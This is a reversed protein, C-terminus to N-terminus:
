HVPYAPYPGTVDWVERLAQSYIVEYWEGSETGVTWIDEYRKEISKVKDGEVTPLQEFYWIVIEEDTMDGPWNPFKHWSVPSFWASRKSVVSLSSINKEYGDLHFETDAGFCRSYFIRSHEIDEPTMGFVVSGINTASFCANEVKDGTWGYLELLAQKAMSVLIHEQNEEDAKAKLTYPGGDEVYTLELQQFLADKAENEEVYRVLHLQGEDDYRYCTTCYWAEGKKYRCSIWQNKTDTEVNYLMTSFEYRHKQQNWLMCHYLINGGDVYRERICIDEWGDFNLDLTLTGNDKKTDEVISLISERGYGPMDMKMVEAAKRLRGEEEKEKVLPALVDELDQEKQMDPLNRAYVTKWGGNPIGGGSIEKGTDQRMKVAVPGFNLIGAGTGLLFILAFLVMAAALWFLAGVHFRKKEQNKLKQKKIFRNFM